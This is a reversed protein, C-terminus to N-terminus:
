AYYNINNKYYEYLKQTAHADLAAYAVQNNTLSMNSWASFTFTKDIRKGFCDEYANSLSKNGFEPQLNIAPQGPPFFRIDNGGYFAIKTYKLAVIIENRKEEDINHLLLVKNDLAFSMVDPLQSKLFVDQEIDMGIVYAGHLLNIAVKFNKNNIIFIKLAFPDYVEARHIPVFTTIIDKHIIDQVKDRMYESPLMKIITSLCYRNMRFYGFIDSIAIFLGSESINDNEFKKILCKILGLGHRYESM